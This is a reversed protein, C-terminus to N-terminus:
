PVHRGSTGMKPLHQLTVLCVFSCNPCSLMSTESPRLYVIELHEPKQRVLLKTNIQINGERSLKEWRWNQPPFFDSSLCLSKLQEWWAKLPEAKSPPRISSIALIGVLPYIIGPLQWSACSDSSYRQEGWMLLSFCNYSSIPQPHSPLTQTVSIIMLYNIKLTQHLWGKRKSKGLVKSCKLLHSWGSLTAM